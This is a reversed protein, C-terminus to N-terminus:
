SIKQSCIFNHCCNKKVGRKLQQKQIRSGPHTFILIRSLCRPDAVSTSIVGLYIHKFIGNKTFFRFFRWFPSSAEAPFHLDQCLSPCWCILDFGESKRIKTKYLNCGSKNKALTLNLSKSRFWQGSSFVRNWELRTAAQFSLFVNKLV